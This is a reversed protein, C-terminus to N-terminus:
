NSFLVGYGADWQGGLYVKDVYVELEGDSRRYVDLRYRTDGKREKLYIIVGYGPKNIAGIKVLDEALMLGDGIGYEEYIDMNQGEAIIQSHTMDKKFTQVKGSVAETSTFSVNGFWNTIDSDVYDFSGGNEKKLSKAREAVTCTKGTPNTTAVYDTEEFMDSLVKANANEKIWNIVMSRFAKKNLMKKMSQQPDVGCEKMANEIQNIGENAQGRTVPSGVIKNM